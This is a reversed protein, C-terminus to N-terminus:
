RSIPKVSASGRPAPEAAPAATRSFRGLQARRSREREIERLAQAAEGDRPDLALVQLWSQQASDLQGQQQAKLAADRHRARLQEIHQRLEHLRARAQADGPQLLILVEWARAADAWRGRAQAQEALARQRQAYRDLPSVAAEVAQGEPPSADDAGPLVSCGALALSLALAQVPLRPRWKM